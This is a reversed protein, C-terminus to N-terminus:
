ADIETIEINYIARMLKKKLSYVPTRIGKVDEFVREGLSFPAAQYSFDDMYYGCDVGNVMLPHKTHVQLDRIEGAARLLKLEGYRRHEARSDFTIGDETVKIAHYKSM